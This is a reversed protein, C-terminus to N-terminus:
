FLLAEKREGRALAMFRAANAVDRGVHGRRALKEDDGGWAEEEFLEDLVSLRHAGDVELRGLGVALGLVLSGFAPVLVGLGALGFADFGEVGARLAAMAAGDQAVPMVGETVRLRAGFREWAWEVWPGWELAQRVVLAVPREARYCLLDSAGYASIADVVPGMDPAIREQATGALGTLPLDAAILTEGADRWEAAIADALSRQRLRLLPGGPLRMPRGDLLVIFVDSEAVVSVDTWFRKV